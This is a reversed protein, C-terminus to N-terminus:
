FLRGDTRRLFGGLELELREPPIALIGGSNGIEASCEMEYPFLRQARPCYM